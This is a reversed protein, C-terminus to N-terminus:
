RSGPGRRGSLAELHLGRRRLSIRAAPERHRGKGDCCSPFARTADADKLQRCVAFGDAGPMVVDLLILDPHAKVAIRLAQDANAATLIEYGRPELVGALLRINTPADDVILIKESTM